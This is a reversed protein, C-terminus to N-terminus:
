QVFIISCRSYALYMLALYLAIFLIGPKSIHWGKNCVYCLYFFPCGNNGLVCGFPFYIITINVKGGLGMITTHETDHYKSKM